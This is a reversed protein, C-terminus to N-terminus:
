GATHPDEHTEPARSPTSRLADDVDRTAEGASLAGTLTRQALGESLAVLRRAHRPDRGARTLLREMEHEIGNQAEIVIAAIATDVVAQAVFGACVRAGLRYGPSQDFRHVLLRRVQALAVDRGEGTVDGADEDADKDTDHERAPPSANNRSAALDVLAQCAHTLMAERTAFHHQIRGVSLEGAAAVRRMTAGEVGHEGITAWVAHAIELRSTPHVARPCWWVIVIRDAKEKPGAPM